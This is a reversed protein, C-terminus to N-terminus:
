DFSPPEPMKERPPLDLEMGGLPAFRRRIADALSETEPTTEPLAASLITRAGEEMSRGHQAAQVRLRAKVCDDLNRIILSGM